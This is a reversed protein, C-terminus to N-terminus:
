CNQIIWGKGVSIITHSYTGTKGVTGTQAELKPAQFGDRVVIPCRLKRRRNTGFGSGVARVIATVEYAHLAMPM